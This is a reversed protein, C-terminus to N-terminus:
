RMSHDTGGDGEEFGSSGTIASRLQLLFFDQRNSLHMQNDINDRMAPIQPAPTWIFIMFVDDRITRMLARASHNVTSENHQFPNKPLSQFYNYNSKSSKPQPETKHAFWSYTM